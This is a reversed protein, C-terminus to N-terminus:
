PNVLMRFTEILALSNKKEATTVTLIKLDFGTINVIDRRFTM